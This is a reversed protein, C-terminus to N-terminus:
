PRRWRAVLWRNPLESAPDEFYFRDDAVAMLRPLNAAGWLANGDRDMIVLDWEPDTVDGVVASVAISGDSLPYPRFVKPPDQARDAVDGMARPLPIPIREMLGGDPDFKYLTDSLAWIGWITDGRVVASAAPSSRARPLAREPVGVPLFSNELEGSNRNWIHLLRPREENMSVVGALLYRGGGLGWIGAAAELPSLVVEPDGGDEAPFFTLRPMGVDAVAIGGDPLLDGGMPMAFEGPGSGSRGVSRMLAGDPGYLNVKGEMPEAFLFNGGAVAYVMPIVVMAQDTEELTLERVVEFAEEFAELDVGEAGARPASKSPTGTGAPPANDPGQCALLALASLLCGTPRIPSHTRFGPRTRHSNTRRHGPRTKAM